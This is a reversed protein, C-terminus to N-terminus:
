RCQFMWELSSWGKKRMPTARLPNMTKMTKLQWRSL